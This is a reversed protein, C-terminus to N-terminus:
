KTKFQFIYKAALNNGAKDKVAAGPIYVQYQTNATRTGTKITLINGSITNTITITKGTKLNKVYIKTYNAGSYINENFKITIPSTLSIKVARNAPTTSSVKPPSMDITYNQTYVPSTNGALDVALYKLITTTKITLPGTYKSSSTTPTSGNLTYYITGAESMKLTVNKTNNYLGGAPSAAATPSITDIVFINTLLNQNDLNVSITNFGPKTLNLKVWGNLMFLNNVAGNVTFNIPIGDQIHGNSPDHGLGTLDQLLDTIIIPDSNVYVSNSRLTLVLYYASNLSGYGIYIDDAAPGKNSGWWNLTLDANGFNCIVNGFPLSATNGFFRNFNAILTSHNEIAGGANTASNWTLSSSTINCTGAEVQIAGGDVANNGSLTSNVISVTGNNWLAGGSGVGASNNSLNSNIITLTGSNSIAGGCCYIADKGFKNNTLASKTIILTGTNYIAGGYGDVVTDTITGGKGASNSTFTSNTINLVGKNFIAGGCGGFGGNEYISIAEGGKGASNSTFMSNIISLTGSNFLAGGDGGDSGSSGNAGNGASNNTFIVSIIDLTGSNVVAGGSSGKIGTGGDPAKGNTLTLNLILVNVGSTIIFIQSSNTGNIITGKQSQGVITMNTDFTIGTNGSGSYIGNAIRITGINNVTGTANKITLKATAWSTGNWSDNGHSGNVYITNGAASANGVGFTFVTVLFFMILSYILFNSKYGKFKTM